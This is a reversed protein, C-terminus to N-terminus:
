FRINVGLALRSINDTDVDDTGTLHAIRYEIFPKLFPLITIEAGGFGNWYFNREKFSVGTEDTSLEFRENGIGLGVYPEVLGVTVGAVAALGYDYVDLERSFEVGERTIRNTDNFNSYHARLRLDILPIGSLVGKEVRLGFGNKPTDNRYEYSAGVAWQSFASESLPILFIIFAFLYIFKKMHM